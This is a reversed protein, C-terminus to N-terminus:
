EKQNKRVSVISADTIKCYWGEPDDVLAFTGEVTVLDGEDPMSEEATSDEGNRGFEIMETCCATNDTVTCTYSVTGETNLYSSFEGKLRISKGDYEEPEALINFMQALAMTQSMRSLDIDVSSGSGSQGCGSGALVIASLALVVATLRKKMASM